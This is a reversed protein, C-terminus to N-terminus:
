WRRNSFELPQTNARYSYAHSAIHAPTVRYGSVSVSCLKLVAWVSHLEVCTDAVVVWKEVAVGGNEIVRRIFFSFGVYADEV